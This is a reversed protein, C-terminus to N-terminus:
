GLMMVLGSDRCRLSRLLSFVVSRYHSEKVCHPRWWLFVEITRFAHECCCVGAVGHELCRSSVFAMNCVGFHQSRWTRFAVNNSFCMSLSRVVSVGHQVQMGVEVLMRRGTLSTAVACLNIDCVLRCRSIREHCHFWVGGLGYLKLM